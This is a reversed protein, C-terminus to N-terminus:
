HEDRSNYLTSPMPGCWTDFRLIKPDANHFPLEGVNMFLMRVIEQSKVHIEESYDADLQNDWGGLDLCQQIQHETHM